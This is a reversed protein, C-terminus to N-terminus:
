TGPLPMVYHACYISQEVPRDYEAAADPTSASNSSHGQSAGADVNLLHFMYASVQHLHGALNSLTNNRICQRASATEYGHLLCESTRNGSSDSPSADLRFSQQRIITSAVPREQQLYYAGRVSQGDVRHQHVRHRPTKTICVTGWRRMPRPRRSRTYGTNFGYDTNM